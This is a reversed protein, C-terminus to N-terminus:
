RMLVNHNTDSTCVLLTLVIRRWRMTVTSKTEGIKRHMNDRSRKKEIQLGLKDNTTGHLNNEMLCPLAVSLWVTLLHSRAEKYTNTYEGLILKRRIWHIHEEGSIFLCLWKLLSTSNAVLHCTEHKYWMNMSMDEKMWKQEIVEIDIIKREVQTNPFTRGM